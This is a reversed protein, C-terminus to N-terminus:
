RVEYTGVFQTWFPEAADTSLIFEFSSLVTGGAAVPAPAGNFGWGNSANSVGENTFFGLVQKRYTGAAFKDFGLFVDGPSVGDPVDVERVVGDYTLTIEGTASVV